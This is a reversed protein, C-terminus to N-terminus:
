PVRGKLRCFAYLGVGDVLVPGQEKEGDGAECPGAHPSRRMMESMDRKYCLLRRVPSVWAEDVLTHGWEGVAIQEDEAQYGHQHSPIVRQGDHHSEGYPEAGLDKSTALGVLGQVKQERM